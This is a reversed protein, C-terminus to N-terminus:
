RYLLYREGTYCIGKLMTNKNTTFKCKQSSIHEASQIRKRYKEAPCFVANVGVRLKTVGKKNVCQPWVNCYISLTLFWKLHKIFELIPKTCMPRSM